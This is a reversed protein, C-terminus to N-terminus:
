QSPICIFCSLYNRTVNSTPKIEIEVTKGLADNILQHWREAQGREDGDWRIQWGQARYGPQENIRQPLPRVRISTSTGWGRRLMQTRVQEARLKGVDGSSECWFIDYRYGASDQSARPPRAQLTQLLQQEENNFVAVNAEEKIEPNAAEGLVKLFNNRLEGDPLLSNVLALAVAQQRENQSDLSGKVADYVKFTLSIDSEKEALRAQLSTSMQTTQANLAQVRYILFASLLATATSLIPVIYDRYTNRQSRGDDAM